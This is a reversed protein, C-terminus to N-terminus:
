KKKLFRGVIQAERWTMLERCSFGAEAFLNLFENSSYDNVWGYFRRRPTEPVFDTSGYSAIIVDVSKSLHSLLRPVDNVYELVGSFVAIDHRAFHPLLKANLDCVLTGAGRDVLDSPTYSCGKPLCRKLVMRGAGFELVSSGAPILTAILETRSDWDPSLNDVSTWKRHNSLDLFRRLNTTFIETIWVVNKLLKSKIM